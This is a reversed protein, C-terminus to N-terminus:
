ILKTDNKIAAFIKRFQGANFDHERVEFFKEIPLDPFITPFEMMEHAIIFLASLPSIFQATMGRPFGSGDPREHHQAVIQDVDSPVENFQRTYEAAKAPHFRLIKLDEQSYRQKAVANKYSTERALNDDKLAIDHLFAAMSLKLFTSASSWGLRYALACALKGLVVSHSSVYTGEISKLEQFIASLRPRSGILKMTMAVSARAINQAEPTFGMEGVIDRIMEQSEHVTEKVKEDSLNEEETLAEVKKVQATLLDDYESKKLFFGSSRYKEIDAKSIADGNKYVKIFRGDQMKIYVDIRLPNMSSLIDGRVGVYDLALNTTNKKDKSIEIKKLAAQISSDNGPTAFEMPVDFKFISSPSEEKTCLIYDVQGGFQVLLRILAQSTGSHEFIILSFSKSGEELLEIAEQLSSVLTEQFPTSFHKKLVEHALLRHGPDKFVVLVRPNEATKPITEM